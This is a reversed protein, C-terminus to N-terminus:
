ILYYITSCFRGQTWHPNQFLIHCYVCTMAIAHHLYFYRLVILICTPGALDLRNWFPKQFTLPFKRGWPMTVLVNSRLFNCKLRDLSLLKSFLRTSNSPLYLSMNLVWDFKYSTVKQSFLQLSYYHANPYWGGGGWEVGRSLFVAGRKRALDGKFRCVTWAEGRKPCDGM